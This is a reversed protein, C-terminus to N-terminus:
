NSEALPISAPIRTRIQKSPPGWNRQLFSLEIYENKAPRIVTKEIALGVDMQAYTFDIFSALQSQPEYGWFLRILDSNSLNDSLPFITQFSDRTYRQNNIIDWIQLYDNEIQVFIVKRSLIDKFIVYLSDGSASFSFNLRVSRDSVHNVYGKGACVKNSLVSQSFSGTQVLTPVDVTALRSTCGQITILFLAAAPLLLRILILKPSCDKM